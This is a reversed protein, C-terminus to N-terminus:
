STSGEQIVPSFHEYLSSHDELRWSRDLMAEAADPLVPETLRMAKTNLEHDTLPRALSGRAHDVHEALSTGDTLHM